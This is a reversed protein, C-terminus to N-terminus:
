ELHQELITIYLKPYLIYKNVFCMKIKEYIKKEFIEFLTVFINMGLFTVVTYYIM